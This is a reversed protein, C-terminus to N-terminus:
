HCTPTGFPISSTTAALFTRDEPSGRRTTYFEPEIGVLVEFGLEHRDRPVRKADGPAAELPRGDAWAADCIMRATARARPAPAATTAPRSVVASRRLRDRRQLPDRAGPGVASDLVVRHRRVHEPRQAAYSQVHDSRSKTQFRREAMCTPCSSVSTAFEEAGALRRSVDEVSVSQQQATAM